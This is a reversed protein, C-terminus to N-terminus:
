TTPSPRATGDSSAPSASSEGLSIGSAAQWALFVDNMQDADEFLDIFQPVYFEAIQVQLEFLVAAQAPTPDNGEGIDEAAAMLRRQLKPSLYQLKPFSFVQETGDVPDGADDYDFVAFEFRNQRISAKSPPVVYRVAAPADLVTM